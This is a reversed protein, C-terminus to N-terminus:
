RQESHRLMQKLNNFPAATTRISAIEPADRRATEMRREATFNLCGLVNLHFRRRAKIQTSPLKYNSDQTIKELQMKPRCSNVHTGIEKSPM